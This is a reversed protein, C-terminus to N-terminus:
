RNGTNMEVDVTTGQSFTVLLCMERLPKKVQTLHSFTKEKQPRTDTGKSHVLCRHATQRLGNCLSILYQKKQDSLLTRSDTFGRLRQHFIIGTTISPLQGSQCRDCQLTVMHICFGRWTQVSMSEVYMRICVICGRCVDACINLASEFTFEFRLYSHTDEWRQTPTRRQRLSLERIESHCLFLLLLSLCRSSSCCVPLLSLRSSLLPSLRKHFTTFAHVAICKLPAVCM